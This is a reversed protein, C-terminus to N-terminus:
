ARFEAHCLREARVRRRGLLNGHRGHVPVLQGDFLGLPRQLALRLRGERPLVLVLARLEQGEVVLALLLLPIGRFPDVPRDVEIGLVGLLEVIARNRDEARREPIAERFLLPDLETVVLLRQRERLEHVALLAGQHRGGADHLRHGVEVRLEVRRGLHHVLRTVDGIVGPRLDSSSTTSVSRRQSM